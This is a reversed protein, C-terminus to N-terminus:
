PSAFLSKLWVVFQQTLDGNIDLDGRKIAFGIRGPLEQTALWAYLEARRKKSERFRRINTPIGDIYTQARPWIADDTPIMKIVFDELEGNSKNDPMLWIGIRPHRKGREIITGGIRPELPVNLDVVSNLSQSIERWRKILDNNADLIIGLVERGSVKIESPIANLVDSFGSRAFIPVSLNQGLNRSIISALFHKDDEGEVVMAFKANDPHPHM